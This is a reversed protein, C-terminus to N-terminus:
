GYVKQYARLLAVTRLVDYDARHPHSPPVEKALKEHEASSEQLLRDHKTVDAHPMRSALRSQALLTSVDFIRYHVLTSVRPMRHQLFSLDCHPSAGAMWPQTMRGRCRCWFHEQIFDCVHDEVEASDDAANHSDSLLHNGGFERDCYQQRCWLSATDLVALPQRVTHTCTGGCRLSTDLVMCSIELIECACADSDTTEIDVFLYPLLSGEDRFCPCGRATCGCGPLGTTPTPPRDQGAVAPICVSMRDCHLPQVASSSSGRSRAKNRGEKKRNGVPVAGRREVTQM